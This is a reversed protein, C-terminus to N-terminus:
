FSMRLQAPAWALRGERALHIAAASTAGIRAVLRPAVDARRVVRLAEKNDGDIMSEAVDSLHGDAELVETLNVLKSNEIMEEALTGNSIAFIDPLTDATYYMQLKQWIVVRIFVSFFLM